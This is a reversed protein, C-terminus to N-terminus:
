LSVFFDARSPELYMGPGPKCNVQERKLIHEMELNGYIRKMKNNFYQQVKEFDKGFQPTIIIILLYYTNFLNPLDKLM